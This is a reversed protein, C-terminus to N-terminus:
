IIRGKRALKRNTFASDDTVEKIIKLFPPLSIEQQEETLELELIWLGPHPELFCDLEFYQNKYPFCWRKKRIIVSDPEQEYTLARLYRTENIPWEVEIRVSKRVGQKTSEVFMSSGDQERKRVRRSIASDKSVLYAQEITIAQLPVNFARLDPPHILFKREIELPIPIGLAHCVERLLRRMKGEFDTSNDIIRLHPHGNWAEFIKGDLERAEALTETRAKNNALTYFEESGFAASVLHFVAQYREDRAPILRLGYRELWFKFLKPDTYARIDFLGRDCLIVKRKASSFSAMRAYLAERRLVEGFLFEQFQERSFGNAGPTIGCLIFETPIEPVVFPTIGYDRLKEKLYELGTTKGACSGGTLVYKPISSQLM